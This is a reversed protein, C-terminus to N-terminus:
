ISKKAEKFSFELFPLLENIKIMEKECKRMEVELSGKYTFIRENGSKKVRM